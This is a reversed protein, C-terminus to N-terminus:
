AAVGGPSVGLEDAGQGGGEVEREGEVIEVQGGGRAVELLGGTVGAEGEEALTSSPRNRGPVTSAPRYRM